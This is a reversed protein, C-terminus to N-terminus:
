EFIVIDLVNMSFECYEDCAYVVYCGYVLHCSLDLMFVHLCRCKTTGLIMALQAEEELTTGLIVTPRAGEPAILYTTSSSM